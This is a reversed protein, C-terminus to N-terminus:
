GTSPKWDKGKLEIMYAHMNRGSVNEVEHVVAPAWFIKGPSVESVHVAGHEPTVKAKGGSLAVTVHEPHFHRGIGCVGLGPKAFYELVRVKDNEFLVKYSRPNIKVPDPARVQQAQAAQAAGVTALIMLLDRRSLQKSRTDM